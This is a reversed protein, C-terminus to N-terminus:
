LQYYMIYSSNIYEVVGENNIKIVENEKIKDQLEKETECNLVIVNEFTFDMTKIYRAKMNNVGKWKNFQKLLYEKEYDQLNFNQINDMKNKM